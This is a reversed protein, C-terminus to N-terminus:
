IAAAYPTKQEYWRNIGSARSYTRRKLLQRHSLRLGDFDSDLVVAVRAPATQWLRRNAPPM